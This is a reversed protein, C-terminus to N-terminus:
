TARSQQTKTMDKAIEDMHDMEDHDMEDQV